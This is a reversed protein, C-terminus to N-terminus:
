RWNLDILGERHERCVSILYDEEEPIRSYIDNGKLIVEFIGYSEKQGEHENDCYRREPEGPSYEYKITVEDEGIDGTCKPM